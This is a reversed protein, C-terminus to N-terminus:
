SYKAAIVAYNFTSGTLLSDSSMVSVSLTCFFEDPMDTKSLWNLYVSPVASFKTYAINSLALFIVHDIHM